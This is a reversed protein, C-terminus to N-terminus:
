SSRRPIRRGTPAGMSSLVIKVAEVRDIGREANARAAIEEAEALTAGWVWPQALEDAGIMPWHGPKGEEVVSPVYGGYVKPDQSPNIYYVWRGELAPLYEGKANMAYNM